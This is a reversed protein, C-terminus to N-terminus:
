GRIKKLKTSPITTLGWRVDGNPLLVQAPHRGTDIVSGKRITTNFVRGRSDEFQATIDETVKFWKVKAM